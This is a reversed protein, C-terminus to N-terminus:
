VLIMEQVRPEVLSYGDVLPPLIFRSNYQHRLILFVTLGGFKLQNRNTDTGTCLMALSSPAARASAGTRAGGLTSTTRSEWLSTTFGYRSNPMKPLIKKNNFIKAKKALKLNKQGFHKKKKSKM